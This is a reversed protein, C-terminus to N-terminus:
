FANKRSGVRNYFLKLHLGQVQYNEVLSKKFVREEDYKYVM